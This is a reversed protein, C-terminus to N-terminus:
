LVPVPFGLGREWLEHCFPSLGFTMERTFDLILNDLNPFLVPFEIFMTKKENVKIRVINKWLTQSTVM